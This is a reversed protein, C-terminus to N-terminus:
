GISGARRQKHRTLLAAAGSNRFAASHNVVHEVSMPGITESRVGGFDSQALYGAFRIVAENLLSTPAQPAYDVVIQAGVQLLREAVATPAGTAEALQAVSITVAGTDTGPVVAPKSAGPPPYPLATTSSM